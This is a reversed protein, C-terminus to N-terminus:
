ALMEQVLHEIAEDTLKGAPEGQPPYEWRCSWTDGTSWYLWAIKPGCSVEIRGPGDGPASKPLFNVQYDMFHVTLATANYPNGQERLQVNWDEFRLGESRYPELVSCIRAMLKDIATTWLTIAQEPQRSADVQQKKDRLFQGLQSMSALM